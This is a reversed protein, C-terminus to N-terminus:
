FVNVKAKLCVTYQITRGHWFQSKGANSNMPCDEFYLIVDNFRRRLEHEFVFSVLKIKTELNTAMVTKGRSM